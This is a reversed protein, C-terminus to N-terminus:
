LIKWIFVYIFLLARHRKGQLKRYFDKSIETEINHLIDILEIHREYRKNRNLSVTIFDVKSKLDDLLLQVHCQYNGHVKIEENGLIDDTKSNLIIEDNQDIKYWEWISNSIKSSMQCIMNTDRRMRGKIPKGQNKMYKELKHAM